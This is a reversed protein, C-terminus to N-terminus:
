YMVTEIREKSMKGYDEKSSVIRTVFGADKVKM